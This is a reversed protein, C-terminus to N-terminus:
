KNLYSLILAGRGNQRHMIREVATMVKDEDSFHPYLNDKKIQENVLAIVLIHVLRELRDFRTELTRIRTELTRIRTEIAAFRTELTDELEDFRSTIAEFLESNTM